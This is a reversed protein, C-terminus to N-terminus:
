SLIQGVVIEHSTTRQSETAIGIGRHGIQALNTSGAAIHHQNRGLHGILAINLRIITPNAQQTTILYQHFVLGILISAKDDSKTASGGRHGICPQELRSRRLKSGLIPIHIRKRTISLAQNTGGFYTTLTPLDPQRRWTARNLYGTSRRQICRSSTCTTRTARYAYLSCRIVITTVAHNRQIACHSRRRTTTRSAADRNRSPLNDLRTDHM